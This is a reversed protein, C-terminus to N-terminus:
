LDSNEDPISKGINLLMGIAAGSVVLAVGGRSIFPLTQGTAPILSSNVGIHILAQACFWFGIGFALLTGFAGEANRAIRMAQYLLALYLFLVFIGLIIGFEEVLVSFIYDNDKEPLSVKVIGQGVSGPLWGSSEMAAKSLIVQKAYDEPVDKASGTAWLSIRNKLTKTRGGGAVILLAGALILIGTFYILYKTKVKGIFLVVSCTAFLIIATSQNALFVGGCFMAIIGFLFLLENKTLEQEKNIRAALFKAIYFVVLFGIIYFTQLNIGFLSISRHDDGGFLITAFLLIAAILLGLPALGSLTRYSIKSFLFMMGFSIGMYIFHNVWAGNTTLILLISFLALVITIAVVVKGTYFNLKTSLGSM